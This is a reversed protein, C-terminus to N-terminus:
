LLYSISLTSTAHELYYDSGRAKIEASADPCKTLNFYATVLTWKPSTEVCITPPCLVTQTCVEGLIIGTGSFHGISTLDHKETPPIKYWFHNRMPKFYWIDDFVVFGKYEISKLYEYLEYEMHGNHPDIDIFIFPCALITEKWKARVDPEMLNEIHPSINPCNGAKIDPIIKDFIDFTHIHNTPNFSLALASLGTHTGIEIITQHHFLSSLYALLRYHQKGAPQLLDARNEGTIFPKNTIFDEYEQSISNLEKETINQIINKLNMNMIQKVCNFCYFIFM